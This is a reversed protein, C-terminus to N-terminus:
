NTMQKDLLIHQNHKFGNPIQHSFLVITADPLKECLLNLVKEESENDLASTSEDLFLWHPANFIARAIILRQKEGGSLANLAQQQEEKTLILKDRLIKLDVLDLLESADDLSLLNADKPYSIAELIGQNPIYPTQPLYFCNQSHPVKINGSSNPWLGALCKLLTSKGLGSKGQIWVRDGSKIKLNDISLLPKNDPTYLKLKEIVLDENKNITLNIGRIQTNPLNQVLQDLRRTTAALEALNRYSFIFWSLTTVVNTFASALQMLGGLTVKGAIFAPLALFMPIRLVTQFYPRTFCGLILNRFNLQRWNKEISQFLNALIKNEQNEGQQLAIAESSDRIHTLAYRFDGEKRHQEVTLNKLPSGLFHTISSSILVYLPAAWVMYRPIEVQIGIINFSLSFTSLSWLVAFYSFVSIIAMILAHVETVTLNIFIRCDEAIRQEPNDLFGSNPDFRLFWHNKNGLWRNIITKTIIKRWRIQLLRQVYEGILHLTASAFILIAFVGIQNIIQNANIQQLANYFDKSWSIMRISISLSILSLSLVFLFQFLGFIGTKDSLCLKMLRFFPIFFQQM